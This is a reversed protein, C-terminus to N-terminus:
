KMPYYDQPNIDKDTISAYDDFPIELFPPVDPRSKDALKENIDDIIKQGGNNLFDQVAQNYVEIDFTESILLKDRMPTIFQDVLTSYQTTFSESITGKRYDPIANIAAEHFMQKRMDVIGMAYSDPLALTRTMRLTNIYDVKWNTAISLEYSSFMYWLKVNDALYGAERQDDPISVYQLPNKENGPGMDLKNYTKGKIGYTMMEYGEDTVQWNFYKFIDDAKDAAKASLSVVKLVNSLVTSGTKQAPGTIPPILLADWTPDINKLSRIIGATDFNTAGGIEAVCKGTIFKDHGGANKVIGMDPDLVGDNRLGNMFRFFDVFGSGMFPPVIKAPNDPNSDNPDAVWNSFGYGFAVGLNQFAWPDYYDTTLGFMGPEGQQIIKISAVLEDVTTPIAQNYKTFLDNRVIIPFPVFVPIVQTPLAYVKGDSFRCNELIFDPFFAKFDTYKELLPDLDLLAGQNLLDNVLANERGNNWFVDPINGAMVRTPFVTDYETFPVYVADIKVNAKEFLLKSFPSDQETTAPGWIPALYSFEVVYDLESSLMPEAVTTPTTAETTTTATTQGSTTSSTTSTTSTTQGASTTQTPETTTPPTCGSIFIAAISAIALLVMMKRKKYM